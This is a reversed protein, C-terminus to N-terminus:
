DLDKYDPLAGLSVGLGFQFANRSGEEFPVLTSVEPQLAVLDSLRVQVGIGGMGLVYVERETCMSECYSEHRELTTVGLGGHMYISMEKMLNFGLLLPLKGHLYPGNSTYESSVLMMAPGFEAGPAVALDVRKTRVFNLKLDAGLMPGATLGLDVREALGVRLQYRLNPITDDVLYGVGEAAITHVVKGAPVTRPTAYQNASCGGLVALLALFGMLRSLGYAFFTKLM